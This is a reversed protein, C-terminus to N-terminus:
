RGIEHGYYAAANLGEMPDQSMPLGTLGGSTTVLTPRSEGPLVTLAITSSEGMQTDMVTLEHEGPPLSPVHFRLLSSVDSVSVSLSAEGSVIDALISVNKNFEDMLQITIEGPAFILPVFRDANV